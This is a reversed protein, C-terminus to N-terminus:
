KRGFVASQDSYNGQQFGHCISPIKHKMEITIDFATVTGLDFLAKMGIKCLFDCGFIINYDCPGAFVFAHQEDIHCVLSFEPLIMEQLAVERSTKLLGALMQGSRKKIVRPTAGPPL